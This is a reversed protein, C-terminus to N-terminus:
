APNRQIGVFRWFFRPVTAGDWCYNEPIEFSYSKNKICDILKVELKEELIFPKNCKANRSLPYNFGAKPEASFYIALKKDKYWEMM